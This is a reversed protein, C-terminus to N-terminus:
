VLIRGCLQLVSLAVNIKKSLYLVLTQIVTVPDHAAGKRWTTARRCWQHPNGWDEQVKSFWTTLNIHQIKSEGWQSDHAHTGNCSHIFSHNDSQLEGLVPHSYKNTRRGQLQGIIGSNHACLAGDLYTMMTTSGLISCRIVGINYFM